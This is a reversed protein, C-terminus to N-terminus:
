TDVRFDGRKWLAKSKYTRPFSLCHSADKMPPTVRLLLRTHLIFDAIMQM